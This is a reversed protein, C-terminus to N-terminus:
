PVDQLLAGAVIVCLDRLDGLLDMKEANKAIEPIM